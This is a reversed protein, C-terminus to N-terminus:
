LCLLSTFHTKRSGNSSVTEACHKNVRRLRLSDEFPIPVGFFRALFVKQGKRLFTMNIPDSSNKIMGVVQAHLFGATRSGNVAVLIDGEQVKGSAECVLEQGEPGKEFGNVVMSGREAVNLATSHPSLFM